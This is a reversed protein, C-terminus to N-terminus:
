EHGRCLPSLERCRRTVADAPNWKQIRNRHSPCEPRDSTQLSSELFHLVRCRRGSVPETAAQRSSSPFRGAALAELRRRHRGFWFYIYSGCVGDCCCKLPWIELELRQLHTFPLSLDVAASSAARDTSAGATRARAEPAQVGVNMSPLRRLVRGRSFALACSEKEWYGPPIQEEWIGRFVWYNM